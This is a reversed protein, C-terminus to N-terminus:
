KTIKKNTENVSSMTFLIFYEQYFIPFYTGYTRNQPTWRFLSNTLHHTIKKRVNNNQNQKDHTPTKKRTRPQNLKALQNTQLSQSISQDISQNIPQQHSVENVTDQPPHKLSSFVSPFRRILLVFFVRAGHILLHKSLRPM